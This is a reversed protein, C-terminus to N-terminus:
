KGCPPTEKVVGRFHGGRSLKPPPRNERCHWATLLTNQNDVSLIGRFVRPSYVGVVMRGFRVAREVPTRPTYGHTRATSSKHLPSEHTAIPHPRTSLLASIKPRTLLTHKPPMPPPTWESSKKRFFVKSMIAGNQYDCVCGNAREM